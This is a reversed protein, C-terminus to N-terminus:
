QKKTEDHGTTTRENCRWRKTKKTKKRTTEKKESPNKEYRKSSSGREKWHTIRREGKNFIEKEERREFSPGEREGKKFM